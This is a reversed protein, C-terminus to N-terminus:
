QMIFIGFTASLFPSLQMEMKSFIAYNKWERGSRSFWRPYAPIPLKFDMASMRVIGYGQNTQGSL